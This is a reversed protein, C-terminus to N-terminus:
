APYSLFEGFLTIGANAIAIDLRGSERVALEVMTRIIAPDSADGGLAICSGEEDARDIDPSASSTQNKKASVATESLARLEKNIREAAAAALGPDQDNLIVRAGQLAFQRCIEFGIGQGAGTVIATKGNFAPEIRM